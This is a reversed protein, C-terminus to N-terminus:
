IESAARLYSVFFPHPKEPKSNLQPLFGTAIFFRKDTLEIIRARGNDSLGSVVLGFSELKERYDPNLEYNCNFSELIDPKGYIKYAMTNPTLSIKLKGQLRTGGSLPNDIPCSAIVLLPVDTDPDTEAHGANTM